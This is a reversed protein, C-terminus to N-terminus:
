AEHIESAPVMEPLRTYAVIKRFVLKLVTQELHEALRKSLKLTTFSM